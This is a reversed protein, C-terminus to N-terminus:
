TVKGNNQTDEQAKEKDNLNDDVSGDNNPFLNNNDQATEYEDILTENSNQINKNNDNTNQDNTASITDFNTNTETNLNNNKPLESDQVM